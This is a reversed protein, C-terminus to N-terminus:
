TLNKPIELSEIIFRRLNIILGNPDAEKCPLWWLERKFRKKYSVLYPLETTINKLFFSKIEPTSILLLEYTLTYLPNSRLRRYILNATTRLSVNDAVDTYSVYIITIDFPTNELYNKLDLLTVIAM